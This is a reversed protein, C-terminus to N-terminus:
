FRLEIGRGTARVPATPASTLVLYVGVATAVLGAGIAVDAVWASTGAEESKTVAGPDACRSTPCVSNSAHQQILADVGFTAGVAIAAVGLGGTVWGATPHGQTRSGPSPPQPALPPPPPARTSTAPEHSSERSAEPPTDDAAPAGAAPMPTPSAPYRLVVERTEAEAVDFPTESRAAGVTTVALHPGPNVKRPVDLTAEPVNVGDITVRVPPAGPPPTVRLKVKPIRPEVSLALASAESRASTTRLAEHPRTPIREVELWSQRAEILQGLALQAKGLAVAIVPTPVLAYASQYRAVAAHLDGATRAENGARYLAQANEREEPSQASAVRALALIALVPLASAWGPSPNTRIHAM